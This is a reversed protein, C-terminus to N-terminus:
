NVLYIWLNLTTHDLILEVSMNGNPHKSATLYFAM